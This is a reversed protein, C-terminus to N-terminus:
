TARYFTVCLLDKPISHLYFLIGKLIPITRGKHYFYNTFMNRKKSLKSPLKSNFMVVMYLFLM